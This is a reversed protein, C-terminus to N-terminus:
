GVPESVSPPPHAAADVDPDDIEGADIARQTEDAQKNRATRRLLLPYVIITLTAFIFWQGMYNLHSGDDLVPPPVPVPLGNTPAPEQEALEVYAPYLRETVQQQLRGVDVRSLTGLRGDPPDSIGIGEQLQSARVLGRVIVPGSPPRYGDPGADGVPLPIWGRNVAVAHGDSLLLPTVVWYGPSGHSTRNRVLVQDDPLYTGSVTVHRFASDGVADIAADAPVADQVPVAPATERAEIVANADRRGELRSHQWLGAYVFTAICALVFVHSLIWRPTFAWRYRSM